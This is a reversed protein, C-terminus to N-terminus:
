LLIRTNIKVLRISGVTGYLDIETNKISLDM